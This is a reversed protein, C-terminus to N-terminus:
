LIELNIFKDKNRINAFLLYRHEKHLFYEVPIFGYKSHIKMSVHNTIDICSYINSNKFKDCTYEILKSAVGKGEYGKKTNISWIYVVDKSIDNLSLPFNEKELFDAGIYITIYGLVEDKEVLCYRQLNLEKARSQGNVSLYKQHNEKLIKEIQELYKNELIKM